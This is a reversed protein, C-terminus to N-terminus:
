TLSSKSAMPNGYLQRLFHLFRSSHLAAMFTSSSTGLGYPSSFTYYYYYYVRILCCHLSRLLRHSLLACSRWARHVTLLAQFHKNNPAEGQRFCVNVRHKVQWRLQLKDRNHRKPPGYGALKPTDSISSGESIIQARSEPHSAQASINASLATRQPVKEKLAAQGLMQLFQNTKEPELGAVVQSPDAPVPQQLTSSVADFIKQLYAIKGTRDESIVDHLFRFPSKQLLATTLKPRRVLPHSGQLIRQTEQWYADSM